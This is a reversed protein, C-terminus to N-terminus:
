RLNVVLTYPGTNNYRPIPTDLKLFLVLQKGKQTSTLSSNFISMRECSFSINTCVSILHCFLWSRLVCRSFIAHIGGEPGNSESM